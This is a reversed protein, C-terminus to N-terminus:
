EITWRLCGVRAMEALAVTEPANSLYYTFEKPNRCGVPRRAMMWGWSGPRKHRKVVVRVRAFLYERPGKAGETVQHRIWDPESLTAMLEAVTM